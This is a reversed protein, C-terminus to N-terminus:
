SRVPSLDLSFDEKEYKNEMQKETPSDDQQQYGISWGSETSISVMQSSSNNNISTTPYTKGTARCNNYHRNPVNKSFIQQCRHCCVLESFLARILLLANPAVSHQIRNHEIDSLTSAFSLLQQKDNNHKTKFHQVLDSSKYFLARRPNERCQDLVCYPYVINKAKKDILHFLFEASDDISKTAIQERM